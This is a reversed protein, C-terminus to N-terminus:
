QAQLEYVFDKLAEILREGSDPAKAEMKEKQIKECDQQNHKAMLFQGIDEIKRVDDVYEGGCENCKKVMVFHYYGQSRTIRIKIDEYVIVIIMGPYKEVVGVKSIDIDNGFQEKLAELAITCFKEAEKKEIEDNEVKRKKYAEIAKSKLSM